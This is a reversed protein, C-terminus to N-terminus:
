TAARRAVVLYAAAFSLNEGQFRLLRQDLWWAARKVREGLSELRMRQLIALIVQAVVSSIWLPAEISVSRLGAEELLLRLGLPTYRYYDDGHFPHMFPVWIVILGQPKLVRRVEQMAVTPERFHELSDSSVVVEFTGEDFPLRHANGRVKSGAGSPELDLNVYSYGRASLPPGLDGVGGGLDLAWGSGQPVRSMVFRKDSSM